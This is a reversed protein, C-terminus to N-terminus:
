IIDLYLTFFGKVTSTAQRTRTNYTINNNDTSTAFDDTTVSDTSTSNEDDCIAIRIM